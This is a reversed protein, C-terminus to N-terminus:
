KKTILILGDYDENKHKDDWYSLKSYSEHGSKIVSISAIEEAAIKSIDGEWIVDDVVFLIKQDVTGDTKFAPNKIPEINLVIEELTGTEKDRVGYGVVKVEEPPDQETLTIGEIAKSTKAVLPTTFLAMIALSLPVIYLCKAAVGKPTKKKTMMTIRNKLNSHNLSNAMSYLRPGAAKKILLLQYEKANVGAALVADDACYEHVQQLARKTLWVAPNFWLIITALNIMLIDLSHHQSTHALEHTIIERGNEKIDAHSLVVYNLFSFPAIDRNHLIYHVKQTVRVQAECSEILEKHDERNCHNRKDFIVRAISLYAVAHYICLAIVGILYIWTAVRFITPLWTVAGAQGAGSWQSLGDLSINAQSSALTEAGVASFEFPILPLTFSIFVTSIWLFRNLRHLTERSLLFKNFVYLLLLLTSAKLLYVGLVGITM